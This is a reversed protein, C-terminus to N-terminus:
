QRALAVEARALAANAEAATTSSTAAVLIGLAELLNEEGVAAIDALAATLVGSLLVVRDVDEVALIELVMARAGDVNGERLTTVVAVLRQALESESTTRETGDADGTAGAALAAAALAQYTDDRQRVDAWAPSFHVLGKAEGLPVRLLEVTVRICDIKSFGEARLDGIMDEWARGEQWLERARTTANNM